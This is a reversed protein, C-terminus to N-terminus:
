PCVRSVFKPCQTKPNFGSLMKSDLDSKTKLQFSSPPLSDLRIPGNSVGLRLEGIRFFSVDFIKIM